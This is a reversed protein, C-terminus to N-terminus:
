TVLCINFPFNGVDVDVDFGKNPGQYVSVIYKCKNFLFSLRSAAQFLQLTLLYATLKTYM